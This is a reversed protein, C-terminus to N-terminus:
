VFRARCRLVAFCLATCYILASEIDSGIRAPAEGSRRMLIRSISASHSLLEHATGFGESVQM